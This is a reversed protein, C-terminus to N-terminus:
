NNALLGLLTGPRLAIGTDNASLLILYTNNNRKIFMIEMPIKIGNYKEKVRGFFDQAADLQYKIYFNEIKSYYCVLTDNKEVLHTNDGFINLYIGSGKDQFGSKYLIEYKCTDDVATHYNLGYSIHNNENTEDTMESPSLNTTIDIKYVNILFKKDYSFQCIPNRRQSIITENALLKQDSKFLLLYDKPVKYSTTIADNQSDENIRRIIGAFYFILLGVVTVIVIAIVTIGKKM